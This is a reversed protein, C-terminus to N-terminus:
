RILTVDGHKDDDDGSVHTLSVGLSNVGEITYIYVDSVAQKENLMGDWGETPDNTEFVKKGWRSYIVFEYEVLTTADFTFLPIFVDSIADSNPTFANPIHFEIPCTLLIAAEAEGCFDTVTVSFDGQNIATTTPTVDGTSWAYSRAPATTAATLVEDGDNCFTEDGTIEVSIQSTTVEAEATGTDCFDSFSVTYIGPASAIFTANTEANNMEWIIDNPERPSNTLTLTEQGTSCFLGDTSITGTIEPTETTYTATHDDCFDSFTVSYTGAASVTISQSTENNNDWLISNLPERDPALTLTEQGTSCFAGDTDIEGGMSPMNINVPDSTVNDCFNSLGEVTYPADTNDVIVTPSGAGTSWLVGDYGTATVELTTMGDDCFNGIEGATVPGPASTDFVINIDDTATGCINTATATVNGETDVTISPGTETTSWDIVDADTNAASITVIGDSCFSDDNASLEITPLPLESITSEACLVYCFDVGITVTVMYQDFETVVITPTTEGTSWEYSIAGDTTADLTDSFVEAPCYPGFTELELTTLNFNYNTTDTIVIDRTDAIDTTTLILTDVTITETFLLQSDVISDCITQGDPDTKILYFGVQEDGPGEDHSTLYVAGGDMAEDLGNALTSQRTSAKYRRKWQVDGNMNIKMMFAFNDTAGLLSGSVLANGDMTIEIDNVLITDSTGFTVNFTWQPTGFTDTKILMGPHSPPIGSPNVKRGGILYGGDPTPAIATGAELRDTEGYTRSWEINGLSDTKIVAIDSNLINLATGCMIAGSDQTMKVKTTLFATNTQNYVKGWLQNGDNDTETLFVDSTTPTGFVNGTLYYGRHSVDLPADGLFLPAVADDKGYGKTWAVDGTPGAKMIIKNISTTDMLGSIIFSDGELLTLSGDPIVKHEFDYDKSWVFNTKNDFKSVTYYEFRTSDLPRGASLVLYGEDPTQVVDIGTNQRDGRFLREIQEQADVVSYSIFFLLCFLIRTKTFM